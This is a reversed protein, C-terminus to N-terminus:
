HPILRIRQYCSCAAAELGRRDLIKINGRRYRILKRRQLAGAATTVGVRRVGLMDALFSQTLRFEDTPMRERTMLLWRALRQELVHFCNCAATQSVQTMLGDAFRLITRQLAPNQRFLNLFRAASLRVATGTGQVLARVPSTTIGLALRSGIMGERGVLGVELARHGEVVTLLSVLCDSPFYVQQMREGQEHLVEGYTLTVPELSNLLREYVQTPLAALLRNPTGARALAAIRSRRARGPGHLARVHERERINERTVTVYSDGNGAPGTIVFTFACNGDPSPSVYERRYHPRSGALVQRLGAAVALAQIREGAGATRCAVLFNDGERVGLGAGDYAISFKRWARNTMVVTGKLDLVCIGGPLADFASRVTRASGHLMVQAEPLMIANGTAPDIVADLEGDDLARLEAADKVIRRVWDKFAATAPDSVGRAAVSAGPIM